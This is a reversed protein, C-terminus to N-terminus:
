LYTYYQDIEDTSILKIDGFMVKVQDITSGTATFKEYVVANTWQSKCQRIIAPYEDSIAPKCEINCSYEISPRDTVFKFRVFTHIDSGKHHEFIKYTKTNDIDINGCGEKTANVYKCMFAVLYKDETFKAVLRNHEPSESPECFNNIVVNNIQQYKSKFWDQQRLWEVYEPDNSLVEVPQGKYKGFPILNNM